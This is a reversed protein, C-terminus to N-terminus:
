FSLDSDGSEECTGTLLSAWQQDELEDPTRAYEDPVRAEQPLPRDLGIERVLEEYLKSSMALEGFLVGPQNYVGDGPNFVLLCFVLEQENHIETHTRSILHPWNRHTRHSWFPKVNGFSRPAIDVIDLPRGEGVDVPEVVLAQM